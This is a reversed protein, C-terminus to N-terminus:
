PRVRQPLSAYGQFSSWGSPADRRPSSVALRRMSGMLDGLASARVHRTDRRQPCAGPKLRPYTAGAGYQGQPIVGEFSGYSLPHDDVQVALRREGVREPPGKPVAWSRLVGDMELRFDYHLRSAEHRQVVFHREDM